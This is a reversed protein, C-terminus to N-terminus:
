AGVPELSDLPDPEPGNEYLGPFLFPHAADLLSEARRLREEETLRRRPHCALHSDVMELAAPLGAPLVPLGTANINLDLALLIVDAWGLDVVPREHKRIREIKRRISEALMPRAGLRATEIRRIVEVREAVEQIAQYEGDKESTSYKAALAALPKDITANFLDTPVCTANARVGLGTNWQNKM